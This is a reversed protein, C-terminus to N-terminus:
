TVFISSREASIRKMLNLEFFVAVCLNLRMHWIIFDKYFMQYTMKKRKM